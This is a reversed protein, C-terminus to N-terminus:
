PTLEKEWLRRIRALKREVTSVSRGLKAAIEENTFGEVKWLAVRRLQEDELEALLRRCEETAQVVLAPEPERGLLNTMLAGEEGGDQELASAAYVRGDAPQRRQRQEHKIQNCRKRFALVVLLQWLDDRDSLRAFGDQEARRCFSAFADLAVDQASAAGTTATRPFRSRALQVLRTFYREWLPGVAQRDGQKLQQLWLTVSHSTAMTRDEASDSMVSM